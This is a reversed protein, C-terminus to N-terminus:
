KDKGSTKLVEYITNENDSQKELNELIMKIKEESANQGFKFKASIRSPEIAVVSTADLMAQYKKNEYSIPEYGGEPQMKQMLKTLVKCKQEMEEVFYAMGFVMVSKFYQTAPCAIESGGFYSPIFAYEKLVSFAVSPNKALADAKKGKKSGHFYIKEDVYVFNLPVSCPLGDTDICALTGYSTENLLADIQAKDTIEFETRRM